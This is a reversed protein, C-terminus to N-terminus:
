KAAYYIPTVILYTQHARSTLHARWAFYPMVCNRMACFVDGIYRCWRLVVSTLPGVYPSRRLSYWNCAPPRYATLSKINAASRSYIRTEYGSAAMSGLEWQRQRTVAAEM